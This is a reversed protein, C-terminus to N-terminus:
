FALELERKLCSTSSPKTIFSAAGLNIADEKDEIL